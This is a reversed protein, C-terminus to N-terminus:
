AEKWVLISVASCILILVVAWSSLVVSVVGAYALSELMSNAFKLFLASFIVKVAINTKTKYRNIPFCIVAAILAFLIFTACNALLKQFALEYLRLYVKDRKQIKYVKYLSYVDQRYPPLSLLSILESSINDFIKIKNLNQIQDNKLLTVDKLTIVDFDIEGSKAFVKENKKLNFLYFGSFQKKDISKIFVVYKNKGFDIWIDNNKEFSSTKSSEISRRYLNESKIGVPHFVLLWCMGIFISFSIFPFLIQQPSKGISKFITLQHSRCLDWLSFTATIFYVYNIIECFTIPTRLFSLKLAYLIESINTIPFKRSVEAFDFLLILFFVSIAVFAITKLQKKFIYSFLIKNM